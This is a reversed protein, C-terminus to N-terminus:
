DDDDLYREIDEIMEPAKYRAYWAHLANWHATTQKFVTTVAELAEERPLEGADYALNIRRIKNFLSDQKREWVRMWLTDSENMM